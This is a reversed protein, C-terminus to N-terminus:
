DEDDSDGGDGGQAAEVIEKAKQLNANAVVIMRPAADPGYLAHYLQESVAGSLLQTNASAYKGITSSMQTSAKRTVQRYSKCLADWSVDFDDYDQAKSTRQGPRGSSLKPSQYLTSNPMINAVFSAMRGLCDEGTTGLSIRDGGTLYTAGMHYRARNEMMQGRTTAMMSLSEVGPCLVGLPHPLMKHLAVYAVELSATSAPSSSFRLKADDALSLDDPWGEVAPETPMIGSVGAKTLIHLTSAWHGITHMVRVQMEVPFDQRGWLVEAVKRPYGMFGGQGTHHNMLWFGAKTAVIATLATRVNEVTIFNRNSLDGAQKLGTKVWDGDPQDGRMRLLGCRAIAYAACSLTSVAYEGRIGLAPAAVKAYIAADTAAEAVSLGVNVHLKAAAALSHDGQASLGAEFTGNIPPLEIPRIEQDAM